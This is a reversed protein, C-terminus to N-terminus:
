RLISIYNRAEQLTRFTYVTSEIVRYFIIYPESVIMRLDLYILSEEIIKLGAYPFDELHKLSTTIRNLVKDAAAPDDLLIYNLINDLDNEAAPLLEINNNCM